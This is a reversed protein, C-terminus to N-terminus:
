KGGFFFDYWEEYDGSSPMQATDDGPVTGDFGAPREDFTISLELQAGARVVTITTTDGARFHRLNRTLDTISEVEYEGLAIIIDKPQIGARDASAGDVVDIVYAGMPLGYMSASSSDMNQVTVGLYAGTVYGYDVLDSIITLVDDIPIAFGIGEISAGSSTTGSYKATTIGIVEGKMNFLPGGSNGPNIAADTQIMDIITNDTVIERNKGSIYGVTMTSTLEGLPNGIAVVMDGIILDNSSGLAAAPLNEAEVKLVALDNTSDSGVVTAIYETGDHTIVSVKSADAIVHHNTVVYGDSSLIFGSGASAGESTGFPTTSIISTSIAVVSDVNQAYVQSATLGDASAAIGAFDNQSGELQKRLDELQNQMTLLQTNQNKIQDEWRNNVAAATIGCGAAVLAIILVAALAKKWFGGSRHKKEKRVKPMPQTQPQFTYGPTYHQRASPNMEYPSNAYPSERRGRGDGRYQAPPVETTSVPPERYETDVEPIPETEPIQTTLNEHEFTDM